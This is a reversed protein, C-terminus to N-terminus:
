SKSHKYLHYLRDVCQEQENYFEKVFMFTADLIKVSAINKKNVVAVLKEKKLENFAYAILGKTVEKGYGNGWYRELFRYGIEDEQNDDKVLACTGVFQQDNKQVIAWVWFDNDQKDYFDIVEKLGATDEELTTAKGTTYQMVKINGQMEHFAALDDMNLNRVILRETEFIM